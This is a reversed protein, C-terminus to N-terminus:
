FPYGIGINHVIKFPDDWRVSSQRAPDWMKAGVDWRFILFSFDFRLGLGVGVAIEKPISSKKFDAGERAEDKKTMWVNGFDVFAAGHIFGIIKTRYEVSGELIMEGPQEFQYNINGNEDYVAYSGPGLRRPEWARISNLGGAFYFKEYPLTPNDQSGYPIALGTNLRFNISSIKTVPYYKRVDFNVKFYEYFPLGFVTNDIKNDGWKLNANRTLTYLPGGLEINFFYFKSRKNKTVDNDNFIYSFNINSIIGKNFSQKLNNGQAELEDLYESFSDSIRRTNVVNIDFISFNWRSDKSWFGSYTLAANISSRDYEVRVIDNYGISLRTKPITRWFIDNVGFPFLLKPFTLSANIGAERTKYNQTADTINPQSEFSYKGSIEFLEYGRFFRRSMWTMSVFPGPLNQGQNINVNVGGEATLGYKKMNSTNIYAVLTNSDTKQYNINVFKFSNLNSLLQQTVQADNFNYHSNPRIKINRDLIKLSIKRTNAYRYQIGNLSTSDTGKAKLIDESYVVQRVNYQTHHEQGEPNSLILDVTVQHNGITTDVNFYINQREFDFYGSNKLKKTIRDREATIKEVDFNNGKKLLSNETFDKNLLSNLNEDQIKISVESMLHPQNEVIFYTILSREKKTSIKYSVQVEFFGKTQLYLELQKRSHEVATTDLFTPQEGITNSLWTGNLLKNRRKKLTKEKKEKLKKVKKPKDENKKLKRDYRNNVKIIGKEIKTKNFPKFFLFRERKGIYYAHLQPNASKIVVYTNEQQKLHLKLDYTSVVKNGKLKQKVVFSKGEDGYRAM